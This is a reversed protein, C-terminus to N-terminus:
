RLFCWIILLKSHHLYRLFTIFPLIKNVYFPLFIMFYGSIFNFLTICIQHLIVDCFIVTISTADYLIYCSKHTDPLGHSQRATFLIILPISSSLISFVPSCTLHASCKCLVQVYQVEARVTGDHHRFTSYKCLAQVYQVLM